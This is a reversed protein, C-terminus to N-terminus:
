ISSKSLIGLLISACSWCFASAQSRLTLSFIIHFSFNKPQDQNNHQNVNAAVNTESGGMDLNPLFISLWIYYKGLIINNGVIKKSWQSVQITSKSAHAKVNSLVLLLKVFDNCFVRLCRPSKFETNSELLFIILLYKADIIIIISKELQELIVLDVNSEDLSVNPSSKLM